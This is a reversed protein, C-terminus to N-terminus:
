AVVTGVCNQVGVLLAFLNWNKYMRVLIQKKIESEREKKEPCRKMYKNTMFIQIDKQLLPKEFEKDTKLQNSKKTMTSSYSNHIKSSLGNYSLHITFIKEWKTSQRKVRNITEKLAYM